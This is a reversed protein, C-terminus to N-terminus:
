EDTELRWGLCDGQSNFLFLPHYCVAGFYGNNASQEQEGYVPSERSDLDLVVQHPSGVGEAQAVLERNLRAPGTMNEERALLDPLNWSVKWHRM